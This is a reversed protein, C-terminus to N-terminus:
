PTFKKFAYGPINFRKEAVRRMAVQYIEVKRQQARLNLEEARRQQEAEDENRAEIVKRAITENLSDQILRPTVDTEM